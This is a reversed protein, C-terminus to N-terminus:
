GRCARWAECYLGYGTKKEPRCNWHDNEYRGPLEQDKVYQEWAWELYNVRETVQNRLKDDSLDVSNQAPEGLWFSNKSVYLAFGQVIPTYGNSELCMAQAAIQMAHEPRIHSNRGADRADQERRKAANEHETKLEMLVLGVGEVELLGDPKAALPLDGHIMGKEQVVIKIKPNVICLTQLWKEVERHFVTGMLMTLSGALPRPDNAKSARRYILQRPCSSLESAHWLWHDPDREHWPDVPQSALGARM